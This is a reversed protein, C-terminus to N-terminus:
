VTFIFKMIFHGSESAVNQKVLVLWHVQEGHLGTSCQQIWRTWCKMSENATGTACRHSFRRVRRWSM